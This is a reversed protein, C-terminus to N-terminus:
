PTITVKLILNFPATPVPYPILFGYSAENSYVSNVGGLGNATLVFYRNVTEGPAGTVDLVTATTFTPGSGAVYPIDVIKVYGSGTASSMYLSWGTISALDTDSQEWQFTLSKNVPQDAAFGFVPVLLFMVALVALILKKM